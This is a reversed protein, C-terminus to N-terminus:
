NSADLLREGNPGMSVPMLLTPATLSAPCEGNGGRSGLAEGDRTTPISRAAEM